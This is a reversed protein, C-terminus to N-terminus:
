RSLNVREGMPAAKSFINGVDYADRNILKKTVYWAQAIILWEVIGYSIWSDSWSLYIQYPVTMVVFKWVPVTGHLPYVQIIVHAVYVIAWIFIAYRAAYRPEQASDQQETLQESKIAGRGTMQGILERMEFHYFFNSWVAFWIAAIIWKTLDSFGSAGLLPVGITILTAIIFANWRELWIFSPRGDPEPDFGFAIRMEKKRDAWRAKRAAQRADPSMTELRPADAPPQQPQSQASQQQPTEPPTAPSNTDSM